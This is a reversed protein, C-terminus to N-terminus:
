TGGFPQWTKSCKISTFRCHKQGDKAATCFSASDSGMSGATDAVGSSWCGDTVLCLPGHHQGSSQAIHKVAQPRHHLVQARPPDEAGSVHFEVAWDQFLQSFM